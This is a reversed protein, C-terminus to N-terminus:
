RSAEYLRRREIIGAVPEGTMGAIPEGKAVRERVSTSSIDVAPMSVFLCRETPVGTPVAGQETSRNVVVLTSLRIVDAYRNWSDIRKATDSGVILFFEDGPELAALEELTDVTYTPGGRAIERDDVTFGPEAGVLARTMELRVAAPTIARTGSKQWPDNAVVFKVEDLGLADRVARAAALHGMHPPDFTGGLLGVRHTM